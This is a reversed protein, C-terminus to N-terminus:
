ANVVPRKFPFWTCEGLRINSRCVGDRESPHGSGVAESGLPIVHGAHSSRLAFGLQAPSSRAGSARPRGSAM